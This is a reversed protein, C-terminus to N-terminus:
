TRARGTPGGFNERNKEYIKDIKESKKENEGLKEM